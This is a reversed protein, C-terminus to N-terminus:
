WVAKGSSSTSGHPDEDGAGQRPGSQLPKPLLAELHLDVLAEEEGPLFEEFLHLSHHAKDGRHLVPYVLLDHLPGPWAELDDGAVAHAHVVHVQLRSPPPADPDGV